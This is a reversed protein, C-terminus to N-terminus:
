SQPKEPPQEVSVVLCSTQPYAFAMARLYLVDGYWFDVYAHGEASHSQEFQHAVLTDIELQTLPPTMLPRWQQAIRLLAPSGPILLAVDAGRRYMTELLRDWHLIMRNLCQRQLRQHSLM